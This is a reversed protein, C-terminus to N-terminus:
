LVSVGQEPHRQATRSPIFILLSLKPRAPQKPHSPPHMRGEPASSARAKLIVVCRRSGAAGPNAGFVFAFGLAPTPLRPTVKRRGHLRAFRKRADRYL